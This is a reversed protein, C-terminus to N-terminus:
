NNIYKKKFDDMSNVQKVEAGQATAINALKQREEARVNNLEEAHKAKLAEIETAHNKEMESITNKLTSVEDATTVKNEEKQEGQPTDPSPADTSAPADTAPAEPAPADTAPAATAGPADVETENKEKANDKQMTALQNSFLHEVETLPKKTREAYAGAKLNNSNIVSKRNSPTTVFSFECIEAKTVVMNWKDSFIESWPLEWFEDDTIRTGEQNEWVREHTIHGTSLGLVIGRGIAGNTHVDDFVYGSVKIDGNDMKEFSMPRGIPKEDDHGWLISGSKLFSRVYKGREFFWAESEIIYGNRNKEGNSVIGEFYIAGEPIDKQAEESLKDRSIVKNQEIYANLLM